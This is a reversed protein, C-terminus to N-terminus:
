KNKKISAAYKQEDITGDAFSAEFKEKVSTLQKALEPSKTVELM